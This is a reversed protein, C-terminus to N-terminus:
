RHDFGGSDARLFARSKTDNVVDHLYSTRLAPMVPAAITADPKQGPKRRISRTASAISCSTTKRNM